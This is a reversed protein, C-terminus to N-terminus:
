YELVRADIQVQGSIESKARTLCAVAEKRLLRLAYRSLAPSAGNRGSCPFPNDANVVKRALFSTGIAPRARPQMSRTRACREGARM